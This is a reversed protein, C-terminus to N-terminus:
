RFVWQRSILFSLLAMCAEVIPKAAWVLPLSLWQSLLAILTTSLLTLGLWLLAYRVFRAQGLRATGNSAFTVHGNLWFGLLAGAIRGLVNAVITGMGLATLAVFTSWDVLVLLGGILVFSAGQWAINRSALRSWWRTSRITQSPERPASDRRQSPRHGRM